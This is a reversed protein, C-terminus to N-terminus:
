LLVLNKYFFIVIQWNSNALNKEHLVHLVLLQVPICSLNLQQNEKLQNILNNIYTASNISILMREPVSCLIEGAEINDNAILGRGSHSTEFISLKNAKIGNSFAWNTFQEM